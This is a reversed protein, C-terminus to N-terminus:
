NEDALPLTFYFTSGIGPKSEVWIQGNNKEVFEKCIILGLGTGKESETGLTSYSKDIRFVKAQDDSSIGIGTDRISFIIMNKEFVECDMFIEGGRPTFKIANFLLNSIIVTVMNPDAFANIENKNPRHIVINKQQASQSSLSVAKSCTDRFNFVVPSFSIVGTQSRAWTLLNELMERLFMSSKFIDGIRKKIDKKEFRDFATHLMDTSLLLGQLPNKLDHGIISFFKDKAANSERLSEEIRKREEVEKRIEELAEELQATREVIKHELKENLRELKEEAVKRRTIDSVIGEIAVPRGYEDKVMTNRQNLWRIEGSRHIIKYEYFSPMNGRELNDWEKHFFDLWDPHLISKIFFDKNSFEEATYGTIRRVADTVFEYEGDPLTMRYFMDRARSTFDQFRKETIRSEEVATNREKELYKNQYAVIFLLVIMITLVISSVSFLAKRLKQLEMNVDDYYVGTGVIWDWPKYSLVFSLKPELKNVSDLKQWEYEVYGSGNNNCIQVMKLFLHNGNPDEWTSIDEGELYPLYPHMIMVPHFDNIWFYDKMDEGYRTNRIHEKALEKAEEPTLKGNDAMKKYHDIVSIASETLKKIMERKENMLSNEVIPLVFIIMSLVFLVVTFIIPLIIKVYRNKFLLKYKIGSM